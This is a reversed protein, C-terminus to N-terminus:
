KAIAFVAPKLWCIVIFRYRFVDVFFGAVKTAPLLSSTM